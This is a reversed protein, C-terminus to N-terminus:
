PQQVVTVAQEKNKKWGCRGWKKTEKKGVLAELKLQAKHLGRISCFHGAFLAVWFIWGMCSGHHKKHHHKGRGHHAPGHHPRQFDEEDDEEDDDEDPRHHKRFKKDHHLAGAIMNMREDDQDEEEAEVKPETRGHHGGHHPRGWGRGGFWSREQDEDDQSPHGRHPRGRFRDMM